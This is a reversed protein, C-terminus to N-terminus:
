RDVTAISCGANDRRQEDLMAGAAKDISKV